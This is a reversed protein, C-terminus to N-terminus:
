FSLKLESFLHFNDDVDSTSRDTADAWFDGADLYAAVFSYTLNDFIKYNLFLDYEWGYEDDIGSDTEDAEAYAVLFKVDMKEMPMLSVGGYYIQAGYPATTGGTTSLNGLGGLNTAVGDDESNTLIWVKQWDDGIAGAYGEIDDEDSDQGKAYVYGLEFKFMDMTFTGELNFALQDFDQDSQDDWDREGFGNYRMEGQIGFPGFQGIVYPVFLHYQDSFTVGGKYNVYGYLLGAKINEMNYALGLYYIDNDQDSVEPGIDGESNKEFIAYLTLDGFTDHWRLRDREGETDNFLTGWTGGQMRGAMFTGIDTKITMYARDFDINDSDDGTSDSRGYEKNDLADFRTTLTLNDSVMFDTQLRLRMNMYSDSADSDDLTQNTNHFGRVRYAGSFKTDLAMAPVALMLALFLVTGVLFFKKM